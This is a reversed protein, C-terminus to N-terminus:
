NVERETEKSRGGGEGYMTLKTLDAYKETVRDIGLAIIEDRFHHCISKNTGPQKERYFRCLDPNKGTSNRCKWLEIGRTILKPKKISKVHEFKERIMRMTEPLDSRSFCISSPGGDKTYFVTIIIDEIEPFLKCLALHYIRFQHDNHFAKYDKRKNTKWDKAQGTKWDILEITTPNLLTVLDVTGRLALNGAITKDGVKYDYKAWPEDIEFDFYKEPCLIHRNLPYFMGRNCNKVTEVHARAHKLDLPVWEIHSEKATYYDWAEKIGLDITIDSTNFTKNLEPEFFIAEGNQEALKRYALLELAKHSITGVIARKNAPNKLGICWIIYSQLECWQHSIISSSRFYTVIM